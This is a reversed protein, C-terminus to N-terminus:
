SSEAMTLVWSEILLPAGVLVTTDAMELEGSGGVASVSGDIVAVGSSNYARYWGATGSAAANTGSIPRATASGGVPTFFSPDSLVLSGLMSGTPANSISGPQTGSRIQIFGPGSGSDIQATLAALM